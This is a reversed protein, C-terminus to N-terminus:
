VTLARRIDKQCAPHAVLLDRVVLELDRSLRVFDDKEAFDLDDSIFKNIRATIPDAITRDVEVPVQRDLGCERQVSENLETIREGDLGDRDYTRLAVILGLLDLDPITHGALGALRPATPEGFLAILPDEVVAPPAARTPAQVRALERWNWYSHGKQQTSSDVVGCLQPVGKRDKIMSLQRGLTATEHDSISESGYVEGAYPLDAILELQVTPSQYRQHSLFDMVWAPLLCTPTESAELVAGDDQESLIDEISSIELVIHPYDKLRFAYSLGDCDAIPAGGRAGGAQGQLRSCLREIFEKDGFLQDIIQFPFVIKDSKSSRSRDLGFVTPVETARPQQGKTLLQRTKITEGIIEELDDADLTKTGTELGGKEALLRLNFISDEVIAQEALDLALGHLNLGTGVLYPRRYLSKGDLVTINPDPFIYASVESISHTKKVRRNMEERLFKLQEEVSSLYRSKTRFLDRVQQHDARTLYELERKSVIEGEGTLGIDRYDLGPTELFKEAFRLASVKGSGLQYVFHAKGGLIKQLYWLRMVLIPRFAEVTQDVVEILGIFRYGMEQAIGNVLERQNEQEWHFKAVLVLNQGEWKSTGYVSYIGTQGRRDLNKLLSREIRASIREGQQEFSRIKLKGDEGVYGEVLEIPEGDRLEKEQIQNFYEQM